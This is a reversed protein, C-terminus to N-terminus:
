VPDRMTITYPLESYHLYYISIEIHVSADRWAMRRASATVKGAWAKSHFRALM